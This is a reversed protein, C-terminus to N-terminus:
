TSIRVLVFEPAVGRSKDVDVCSAKLDILRSAQVSDRRRVIIRLM